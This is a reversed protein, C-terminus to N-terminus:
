CFATLSLTVYSRSLVSLSKIQDIFTYIETDFLDFIAITSDTSATALASFAYELEVLQSNPPLNIPLPLDFAMNCAFYSRLNPYLASLYYTLAEMRKVHGSGIQKSWTSILYIEM